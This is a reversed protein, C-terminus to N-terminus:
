TRLGVSFREEAEERLPSPLEFEPEVGTKLFCLLPVLLFSSTVEVGSDRISTSVVESTVVTSGRVVLSVCLISGVVVDVVVSLAESLAVVSSCDIEM